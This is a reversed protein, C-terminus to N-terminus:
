FCHKAPSGTNYQLFSLVTSSCPPYYTPVAHFSLCSPVLHVPIATSAPPLRDMLLPFVSPTVQLRVCLWLHVRFFAFFFSLLDPYSARPPHTPFLCLCRTFCRISRHGDHSRAHTMRATVYDLDGSTHSPIFCFILSFVASERFQFSFM